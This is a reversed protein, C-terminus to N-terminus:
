RNGNEHETGACDPQTWVNFEYDPTLNSGSLASGSPTVDTPPSSSGKEVKEVRALNGSDFKSSFVINGFRAEMTRFEPRESKNEGCIRQSTGTLLRVYVAQGSILCVRNCKLLSFIHFSLLLSIHIWLGVFLGETKCPVVM